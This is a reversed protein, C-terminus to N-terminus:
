KKEAENKPTDAPGFVMDILAMYERYAVTGELGTLHSAITRYYWAHKAPDKQHFHSWFDELGGWLKGRYFSHMNSLKDALWLIRVNPDETEALTRISEEKRQQWTEEAPREEHKNETESLVLNYVREGFRERIEEPSVGCDEVTDHLVAAAVVDLDDTLTSTIVAVEMPHIIYPYGGVKRVQGAHKENAFAVASEFVNM